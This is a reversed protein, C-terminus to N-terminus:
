MKEEISKNIVTTMPKALAISSSKVIKNNITDIGCSLKPRQQRMISEVAKEEVAHLCFEDIFGTKLYEEYGDVTPLEEAMSKGISAFYQNFANAINKKNQVSKGDVVFKSPM